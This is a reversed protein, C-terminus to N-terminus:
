GDLDKKVTTSWGHTNMENNVSTGRSMKIVKPNKIGKKFLLLACSSSTTVLPSSQLGKKM